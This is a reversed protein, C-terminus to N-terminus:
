RLFYEPHVKHGQQPPAQPALVLSNWVSIISKLTNGHTFSVSVTNM